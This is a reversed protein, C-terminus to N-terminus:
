RVAIFRTVVDIQLGLFEAEVTRVNGHCPGNNDVSWGLQSAIVIQLAPCADFELIGHVANDRANVRWPTSQHNLRRPIFNKPCIHPSVLRQRAQFRFAVAFRVHLSIQHRGLTRLGIGSIDKDKSCGFTSRSLYYERGVM